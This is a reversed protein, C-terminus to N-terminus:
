KRKIFATKEGSDFGASKYFHLTAADKRGTMLMVKYCGAAWAVDVARALVAKGYGRNRYKAHTVVNEILAYPACGRTLNPIITLTCSTVLQTGIFGGFYHYAPDSWLEAWVADVRSRPPLPLDNPNLHEYLALLQDLDEKRLARIEM